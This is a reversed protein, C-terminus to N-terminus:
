TPQGIWHIKHIRPNGGPDPLTVFGHQQQQQEDHGAAVVGVTGSESPTPLPPLADRRIGTSVGRDKIRVGRNIPVGAAQCLARVRATDNEDGLLNAAIQALHLGKEQGILQHLAALFASPNIPDPEAPAAPKAYWCAILWGAALPWWLAPSTLLVGGGFALGLLTGIVRAIGSKVGDAAWWTTVKRLLVSGGTLARNM